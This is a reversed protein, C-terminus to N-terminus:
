AIMPSYFESVPLLVLGVTPFTRLYDKLLAKVFTKDRLKALSVTRVTTFVLPSFAVLCIYALLIM